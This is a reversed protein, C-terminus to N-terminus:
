ATISWQDDNIATGGCSGDDGDLRNRPADTFMIPVGDAITEFCGSIVVCFPGSVNPKRRDVPFIPWFHFIKVGKSGDIQESADAGFVNVPRSLLLAEYTLTSGDDFAFLDIPHIGLADSRNFGTGNKRAYAIAAKVAGFSILLYVGMAAFVVAGM